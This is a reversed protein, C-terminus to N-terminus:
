NRSAATRSALEQEARLWNAIEQGPQRGSAEFLEYARLAVEDHSPAAPNTLRTSGQTKGTKVPSYTSANPTKAM